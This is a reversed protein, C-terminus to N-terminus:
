IVKTSDGDAETKKKPTSEVKPQLDEIDHYKTGLWYLASGLTVNILLHQGLSWAM